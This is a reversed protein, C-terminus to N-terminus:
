FSILHNFVKSKIKLSIKKYFHTKKKFNITMKKKHQSFAPFKVQCKSYLITYLIKKNSHLYTQIEQHNKIKNM